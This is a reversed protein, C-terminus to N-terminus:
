RPQKLRTCTDIPCNYHFHMLKPHLKFNKPMKFKQAFIKNEIGDHIKHLILCIYYSISHKQLLSLIQQLTDRHCSHSRFCSAM